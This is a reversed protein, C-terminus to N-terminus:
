AGRFPIVVTKARRSSPWCMAGFSKLVATTPVALLIGLFGFIQGGVLVALIVVVPHLGLREGVITPSVINGALIQVVGLVPWWAWRISGLM